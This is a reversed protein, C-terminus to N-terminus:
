LLRGIVQVPAQPGIHVNMREEELYPTEISAGTSEHLSELIERLTADEATISLVGEEYVVVVLPPPSPLEPPSAAVVIPRSNFKLTNQTHKAHRASPAQQSMAMGPNVLCALIAVALVARM